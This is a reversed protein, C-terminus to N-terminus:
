RPPGPGASPRALYVPAGAGLRTAYGGKKLAKAVRSVPFCLGAKEQSSRNKALGEGRAEMDKSKMTKGKKSVKGKDKAKGPKGLPAMRPSAASAVGQGSM